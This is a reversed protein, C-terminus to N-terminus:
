MKLLPMQFIEGLLYSYSFDTNIMHSLVFSTGRLDAKNFYVEELVAEQWTTGQLNSKEFYSDFIDTGNFVAASLESYSADFGQLTEAEFNLGETNECNSMDM